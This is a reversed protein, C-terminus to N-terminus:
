EISGSLGREVLVNRLRVLARGYRKSAAVSDIQLLEAVEQNTLEEFNRMLVIERDTEPLQEVAERVKGAMERRRAQQSPSPGGALLQEALAISSRDPLSVERGLARQQADVHRRHLMLLRQHATKRLWLRFSMPRRRLYDDIRGAVELHTEQVVDSLDVRTRLKRDLRLEVVRRLYEQHQAFLRDLAGADGSRIQELLNRTEASDPDNANM